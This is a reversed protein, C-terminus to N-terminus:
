QVPMVITFEAMISRSGERFPRQGVVDVSKVMRYLGPSMSTPVPLASSCDDSRGPGIGLGILLFGFPRGFLASLDVPLWAAGDYRELGFGLGYFLLETGFNEVKGLVEEGPQFTTGNLTLRVDASRSV